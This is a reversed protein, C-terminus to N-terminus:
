GARTGRAPRCAPPRSRANSSGAPKLGEGITEARRGSIQDGALAVLSVGTHLAGNVLGLPRLLPEGRTVWDRRAAGPAIPARRALWQLARECTDLPRELAFGHGGGEIVILEADPIAQALLRANPLPAIVDCEGHMVLTPAQVRGLRALTDHYVTAWWQAWAGHAPPRHREFLELLQEVREPERSVFAESFLAPALWPRGPRGAASAVDRALRVLEGARPRVARPGGPWTSCLLLGRVREPFRIALEQAVMGGMSVGCVHASALGLADLLRAADAALEHVSTLRVPAQSRGAGRHDYAICDFDAALLGVVPEFVAASIAFGTMLLLPEGAGRREYYLRPSRLAYPM